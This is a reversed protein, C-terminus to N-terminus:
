NMSPMVHGTRISTRSPSLRALRRSRVRSRAGIGEGEGGIVLTSMGDLPQAFSNMAPDKWAIPATDAHASTRDSGGKVAPEFLGIGAVAAARM